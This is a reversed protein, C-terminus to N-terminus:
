AGEMEDLMQRIRKLEKPSVRKASLARMVLKEASGAFVKELIDRVVQKQTREESVAPQYVHRRGDDRRVLLGKEVMIQMLKLTTTYGTGADADLAEHVARVTGTGQAWLVALIALERDTPGTTKKRAM